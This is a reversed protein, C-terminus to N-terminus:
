SREKLITLPSFKQISIMAASSSVLTLVIGIGFLQVLVKFDVVADISDFAEVKAVGSVKEMNPKDGRGFNENVNGVQESASSIEQELLSNSIPVSVLAGIGAGIVLSVLAVMMLESVFQLTLLSKKMGITRLVGIEYKRERINIM